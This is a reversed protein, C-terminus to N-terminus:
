PVPVQNNSQTKQLDPKRVHILYGSTRGSKQYRIIRRDAYRIAKRNINSIQVAITNQIDQIDECYPYPFTYAEIRRCSNPLDPTYLLLRLLRKERENLDLSIMGYFIQLANVSFGNKLYYGPIGFLLQKETQLYTFVIREMEQLMNEEAPFIVANYLSDVHGEGYTLLPVDDLPSQRVIGVADQFTLICLVPRLHDVAYPPFSVACPFGMELIRDRLELARASVTKDMVLLM